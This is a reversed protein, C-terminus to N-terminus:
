VQCCILPIYTKTGEGDKSNESCSSSESKVVSLDDSVYEPYDGGVM